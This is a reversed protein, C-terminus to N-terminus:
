AKQRELRHQSLNKMTKSMYAGFNRVGSGAPLTTGLRRRAPLARPALYEDPAGLSPGLSVGRDVAVSDAGVAPPWRGSSAPDVTRRDARRADVSCSSRLRLTRESVSCYGSM